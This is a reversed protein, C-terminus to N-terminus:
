VIEENKPPLKCIGQFSALNFATFGSAFVLQSPNGFEKKLAFEAVFRAGIVSQITSIYQLLQNGDEHIDAISIRVRSTLWHPSGKNDVEKKTSLATTYQKGTEQWLQDITFANPYLMQLYTRLFHFGRKPNKVRWAKLLYRLRNGEGDSRIISLGDNLAFRILLAQRALHPSGYHLLDHQKDWLMSKFVNMFVVKWAQELEETMVSTALPYIPTVLNNSIQQQENM